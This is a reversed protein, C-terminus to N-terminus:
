QTLADIRHRRNQSPGLREPRGVFPGRMLAQVMRAAMRFPRALSFPRALHPIGPNKARTPVVSPGQVSSGQNDGRGGEMQRRKRRYIQGAIVKLQRMVAAFTALIVGMGILTAREGRSSMPWVGTTRRLRM